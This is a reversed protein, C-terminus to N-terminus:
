VGGSVPINQDVAVFIEDRVDGFVHPLHRQLRERVIDATYHNTTMTPGLLYKALM